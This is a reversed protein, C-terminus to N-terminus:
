NKNEQNLVRRMYFIPSNFMRSTRAREVAYKEMRRTDRGTRSNEPFWKGKYRLNKETKRAFNVVLNERRKRMTEIKGADLVTGYSVNYGFIHKMARRQTRELLDDQKRSLMSHYTPAAFEAVPRIMTKYCYLLDDPKLGASKLNTLAWIGSRLKGLLENVHQTVTPKKGFTFGLIKLKDTSHIRGQEADIYADIDEHSETICLLQTKKQNIRMQMERANEGVRCFLEESKEARCSRKPKNQSYLAPTKAVRIKEVINFDDVYCKNEAPSDVWGPPAPAIRDIESQNLLFSNEASSDFVQRNQIRFFRPGSDENESDDDTIADQNRRPTGIPETISTEGQSEYSVDMGNDAFDDEAALEREVRRQTGEDLLGESAVCFLFNGFITGQPSGGPVTRPESRTGNVKVTMRRDTLFAQVVRVLNEPLGKKRLMELCQGHHMRNFAKEFDISLLGVAAGPDELHTLIKTWTDILFHDVSTGKIGGYQCDTQKVHKRIEELMIKELLKSFLNTCSLNRLDALAKPVDKKPILTVHELKWEMPWIFDTLIHNYLLALPLSIIDIIDNTLAKPPLDGPVTSTTKKMARLTRSIQYAEIHFTQEMKEPATIPEYEQSIGNFFEAASEAIDRDEKGPYMQNISWPKSEGKKKLKNVTKFFGKMTKDEKVNEVLARKDRMELESSEKKLKHWRDNRGDKRFCRQRQRVKRVFQKSAWIKDTSKIRFTKLPMSRDMAHTLIGNMRELTENPDRGIIINWDIKLLENKFTETNKANVTRTTIKTSEGLRVEPILAEVVLSRHDSKVGDATCLPECTQTNLIMDPFNTAIIQLSAEGRSPGVKQNVVDPYDQIVTDMCYRNADGALIILPDAYESKVRGIMDAFEEKILKMDSAATAPPFYFSFVAITRRVGLINGVAAVIEGNKAVKWKKLEIKNKDFFIGVGGGWKGSRNRLITGVAECDEVDRLNLDLEKGSKLWTESVCALSMNTESFTELLSEIKNSISRANMVGITCNGQGFSVSSVSSKTSM